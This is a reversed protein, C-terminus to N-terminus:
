PKVAKRMPEFVRKVQDWFYGDPKRSGTLVYLLIAPNINLREAWVWVSEGSQQIVKNLGEVMLRNNERETERFADIVRTIQEISVTDGVACQTLWNTNVTGFTVQERTLAVPSAGGRCNECRGLAISEPYAMIKRCKDCIVDKM